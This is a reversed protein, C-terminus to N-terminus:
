QHLLGVTAIVDGLVDAVSSGNVPIVVLAVTSDSDNLDHLGLTTPNISTIQAVTVGLLVPTGPNGLGHEFSFMEREILSVKWIGGAPSSFLKTASGM